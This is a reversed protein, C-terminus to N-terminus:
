RGQCPCFAKSGFPSQADIQFTYDKKGILLTAAEYCVIGMEVFAQQSKQESSIKVKYNAERSSNKLIYIHKRDYEYHYVSLDANLEQVSMELSLQNLAPEFNCVPLSARDGALITFLVLFSEALDKEEQTEALAMADTAHARYQQHMEEGGHLHSEFNSALWQNNQAQISVAGGLLSILLCIYPIVRNM